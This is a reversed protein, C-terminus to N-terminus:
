APPTPTDPGLVSALVTPASGVRAQPVTVSPSQWLVKRAKAMGWTPFPGRSKDVQLGQFLNTGLGGVRLVAVSIHPPVMEPLPFHVIRTLYGALCNTM